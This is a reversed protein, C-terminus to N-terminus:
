SLIGALLELAMQFSCHSHVELFYSLLLKADYESCTICITDDVNGLQYHSSGVCM